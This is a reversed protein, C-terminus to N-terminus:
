FRHNIFRQVSEGIGAVASGPRLQQRALMCAAATGDAVAAGEKGHQDNKVCCIRYHLFAGFLILRRYNHDVCGAFYDIEMHMQKWVLKKVCDPIGEDFIITPVYNM